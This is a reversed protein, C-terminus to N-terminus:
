HTLQIGIGRRAFTSLECEYHEPQSNSGGHKESFIVLFESQKEQMLRLYNVDRSLEARFSRFRLNRAPRRHNNFDKHRHRRAEDTQAIRGTEEAHVLIAEIALNTRAQRLDTDAHLAASEIAKFHFGGGLFILAAVTDRHSM